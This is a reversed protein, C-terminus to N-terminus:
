VYTVSSKPIIKSFSVSFNLKTSVRIFFLKHPTNFSKAQSMQMFSATPIKSDIM